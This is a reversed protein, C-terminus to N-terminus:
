KYREELKKVGDVTFILKKYKLLDVININDVNMIEVGTLNRGSRKVNENNDNVVLVSRKKSEVAFVKKELNTLIRDFAKTKHEKMELNDLVILDNAALKDSLAM